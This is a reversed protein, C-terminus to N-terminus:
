DVAVWQDPDAHRLLDVSGDGFLANFGGNHRVAVDRESTLMGHDTESFRLIGRSDSQSISSKADVIFISTSPSSISTFKVPHKTGNGYGCSTNPTSNIPAGNWEGKKITNMVYSAESADKYPAINGGYPNFFTEASPCKILEDTEDNKAYIYNLWSDTTGGFDAPMVRNDWDTTYSATTLATQKMNGTCSIHRATETAAHLAPLSLSTLILFITIVTLLEILTFTCYKM